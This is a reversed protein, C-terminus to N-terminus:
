HKSTSQASAMIYISRGAQNVPNELGTAMNSITLVFRDSILGAPASFTLENTTKLNAIFGTSNDKLTINYDDLSQLQKVSITHTGSSSVNVTVPIQIEGGPELFPQGNISLKGGPIMTYIATKNTPTSMKLADYGMDLDAVAKEAFRVVTEDSSGNDTMALRLMPIISAGKYRAPIDDHTRAAADLSIVEGIAYTKVFFGQTPPIVGSPAALGDDPILVGSQYTYQLNDKTFYIAQSTNVPYSTNELVYDWDLGSTFPNGLLNFGNEYPQGAYDLTVNVNATNLQGSLSYTYSSLNDWFNYGRGLTMTNFRYSYGFWTSPSAGPDDIRYAFGDYAVFGEMISGPSQIGDVWRALDLTNTTFTGVAYNVIPVSIYHWRGENNEPAGIYGGTVYLQIDETGGGSRSYSNMILSSGGASTEMMRLLGSNTLSNITAKSGPEMIFYKGSGVTVNPASSGVPYYTAGSPIIIDRTSTPVGGVWNEATSWDTSGADTKWRSYQVEYAGIDTTLVRSNGAYDTTPITVGTYSNVGADRLPSIFKLTWDFNNPDNFYPSNSDGTNNSSLSISSTHSSFNTFGQIASNVVTILSADLSGIDSGWIATNVLKPSQGSIGSFQFDRSSGSNTNKSCTTNVIKLSSTAQNLYIGSGASTVSNSYILCNQITPGGIYVYVGGGSPASNNRIICRDILGTSGGFYLAGGM